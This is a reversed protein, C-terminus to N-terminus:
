AEKPKETTRFVGLVNYFTVIKEVVKQVVEKAQEIEPAAATLIDLVLQLKQSGAKPVPCAQEVTHIASILHPLVNVVLNLYKM